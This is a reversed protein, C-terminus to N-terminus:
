SFTHCSIGGRKEECLFWSLAPGASGGQEALNCWEQHPVFSEKQERTQCPKKKNNKLLTCIFRYM